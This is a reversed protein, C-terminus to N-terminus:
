PHLLLHVRAKDDVQRSLHVIQCRRSSGVFDLQPSVPVERCELTSWRAIEHVGNLSNALRLTALILQLLSVTAPSPFAPSIPIDLPLVPFNTLVSDDRSWAQAVSLNRSIEVM